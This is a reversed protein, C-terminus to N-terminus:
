NDDSELVVDDIVSDDVVDGNLQMPEKLPEINTTMMAGVATGNQGLRLNGNLNSFGTTGNGAYRMQASDVEDETKTDSDKNNGKNIRRNALAMFPKLVNAVGVVLEDYKDTGSLQIEFDVMRFVNMLDLYANNRIVKLDIRAKGENNYIFERSKVLGLYDDEMGFLYSLTDMLGLEELSMLFGSDNDSLVRLARIFTSMKFQNKFIGNYGKKIFQSLLYEASDSKSTNNISIFGKIVRMIARLEMERKAHRDNILKTETVRRNKDILFDMNPLHEMVKIVAEQFLETDIGEALDILRSFTRVYMEGFEPHGLARSKGLSFAEKTFVVMYKM